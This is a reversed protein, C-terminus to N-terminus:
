SVRGQAVLRELAEVRRRALEAIPKHHYCEVCLALEYQPPVARDVDRPLVPADMYVTIAERGLRGAEVRDLPVGQRVAAAVVELAAPSVLAGSTRVLQFWRGPPTFLPGGCGDCSRLDSLRM